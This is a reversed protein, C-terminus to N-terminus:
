ISEDLDLKCFRSQDFCFWQSLMWAILHNQYFYIESKLLWAFLMAYQPFINHHLLPIGATAQASKLKVVKMHWIQHVNHVTYKQKLCIAYSANLSAYVYLSYLYFIFDTSNRQCETYFEGQRGCRFSSFAHLCESINHPCRLVKISDSSSKIETIM